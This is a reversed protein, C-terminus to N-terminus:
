IIGGEGGTHAIAKLLKERWVGWCEVTVPNVDRPRYWRSRGKGVLSRQTKNEGGVSINHQICPLKKESWCGPNRAKNKKSIGM